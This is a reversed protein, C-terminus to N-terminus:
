KKVEELHKEVLKELLKSQDLTNKEIYNEFKRYLEENMTFYVRVGKKGAM